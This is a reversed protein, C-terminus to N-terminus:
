LLTLFFLGWTGNKNGEKAEEDEKVCGKMKVLYLGKKKHILCAKM